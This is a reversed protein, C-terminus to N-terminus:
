SGLPGYSRTERAKSRGAWSASTQVCDVAGVAVRSRYVGAVTRLSYLSSHPKLWTQFYNRFLNSSGKEVNRDGTSDKSIYITKFGLPVGSYKGSTMKRKMNEGGGELHDVDSDGVCVRACTCM